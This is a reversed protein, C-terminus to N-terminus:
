FKCMIDLYDIDWHKLLEIYKKASQSYIEIWLNSGTTIDLAQMHLFGKMSNRLSTKVQEFIRVMFKDGEIKREAFMFFEAFQTQINVFQNLFHEFGFGYHECSSSLGELFKLGSDTMESKIEDPTQLLGEVREMKIKLTGPNKNKIKSAPSFIGACLKTFDKIKKDIEVAIPLSDILKIVSSRFKAKAQGLPIIDM